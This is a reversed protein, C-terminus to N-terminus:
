PKLENLYKTALDFFARSEELIKQKQAVDQQQAAEIFKVKGRVVARYLKFFPLVTRLSDDSTQNAYREVLSYSAEAHGLKDLSMALFGIEAGVDGVRYDRLFELPDIVVVIEQPTGTHLVYVHEIHLDGHGEVVRGERARTKLLDSNKELWGAAVTKLRNYNEASIVEQLLGYSEYESLHDFNDTWASITSQVAAKQEDDTSLDLRRKGHFAACQDAVVNMLSKSQEPDLRDLQKDVRAEIPLEKMVLVPEGDASPTQPDLPATQLNGDANIKWIGLYAEPSIARGIELETTIGAWRNELSAYKIIGFLDLPKRVKCVLREMAANAVDPTDIFFLYATHTERTDHIRYGQRELTLRMTEKLKKCRDEKQNDRNESASNEPLVLIEPPVILRESM